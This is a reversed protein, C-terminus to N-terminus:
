ELDFEIGEEAWANVGGKERRAPIVCLFGLPETGNNRLQHLTNPQIYIIDGRSIPHIEEGLLVEGSGHFVLIGHDHGHQEKKSHAGSELLYYRFAFNNAGEKKGIMWTETVQNSPDNGYRRTRAGDWKFTKEWDGTFRHITGTM